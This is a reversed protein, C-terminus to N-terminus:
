YFTLRHPDGANKKRYEEEFEEFSMQLNSLSILHNKNIRDIKERDDLDEFITFQGDRTYPELMMDYMKVTTRWTSRYNKYLEDMKLSVRPKVNNPTPLNMLHAHEIDISLRKNPVVVSRVTDWHFKKRSIHSKVRKLLNSSRGIYVLDDGSYLLYVGQLTDNLVMYSERVEDKSMKWLIPKSRLHKRIIKRIKIETNM